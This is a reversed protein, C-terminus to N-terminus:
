GVPPATPGEEGIRAQEEEYTAAEPYFNRRKLYDFRAQGSVAGAQWAGVVATLEQATLGLTAYDTPLSYSVGAGLRAWECFTVLAKTLGQNLQRAITGLQSEEGKRHIAATEAAEVGPRQTELMRAGLVAMMAQKDQLNTRLAEFKGTVEVFYAKAEPRPLLNFVPGGVYISPDGAQKAHGSIFGTPLGSLHCGHEYDASVQYHHINMMALDLLPPHGCGIPYFPIFTLPAGSMLPVIDPGVQTQEGTTKEIKWVRQIYGGSDELLLERYVEGHEEDEECLVARVLQSRNNVRSYKWNTFNEAEYLKISPRIGRAEAQAVTEGPVGPPHDVLLCVRGAELLQRGCKEALEDFTTGDLDIDGLYADLGAPKDFAAPKGFLMGHLATITQKTANFFPTRAVRAKYDDDGEEALKPLYTTGGNHIAREGKAADECMEWDQYHENYEDHRDDIRKM